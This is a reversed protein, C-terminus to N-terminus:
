GMVGIEGSVKEGFDESPSPSLDALPFSLFSELFPRAVNEPSWIPSSSFAKLAVWYRVVASRERSASLSLRESLWTFIHNWFRRVFHRRVAQFFFQHVERAGRTERERERESESWRRKSVRTM